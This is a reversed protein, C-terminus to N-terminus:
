LLFLLLFWLWEKEREREQEGKSVRGNRRLWHFRETSRGGGGLWHEAQGLNVGDEEFYRLEVLDVPLEVVAQQRPHLLPAELLPDPLEEM